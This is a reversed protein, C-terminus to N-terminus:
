AAAVGIRERVMPMVDQAFRRVSDSAVETTMGGFNYLCSVHRVGMEYLRVMKDAVTEASGFLCIGNAIIDDYTHSQAYLRTAVYLDYADCIRAACADDSEAVHTHLTVIHDDDSPAIGEEAQGKRFEAIMTGIDDFDECSAYPVTFLNNHQRGVWYAAPRALVGVYMPPVRDGHPRVNLRVNRGSSFEGDYTLTEGALLKKVIELNENFQDRKRAPDRAHGEFEHALYGSGVGYMLRGGSLLDLMAYTEAVRKPDHFTLVSIGTGLRLRSTRAALTALFVAPDPIVGYEHFHHEAVFFTDYGLSEGLVAEDLLQEYLEPVTRPLAPHHDCVSFLSFRMRENAAAPDIGNM